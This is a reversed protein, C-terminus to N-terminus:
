KASWISGCAHGWPPRGVWAACCTVGKTCVGTWGVQANIVALGDVKEDIQGAAALGATGGEAATLALLSESTGAKSAAEYFKSAASPENRVYELFRAYVQACHLACLEQCWVLCTLVAM